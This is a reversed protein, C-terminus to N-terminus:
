TIEFVPYAQGPYTGDRIWNNSGPKSYTYKLVILASILSKKFSNVLDETSETILNAITDTSRFAPPM